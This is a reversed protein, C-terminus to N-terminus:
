ARSDRSLGTWDEPTNVNTFLAPPWPGSCVTRLELLLQRMKFRKESLAHEVVLLCSRHYVACLPEIQGGVGSPGVCALQPDAISECRTWLASLVAGTLKPMDCAVVLNWEALGLRLATHLGGLPGCGPLLDPYVPYGLESYKAPDGIIGVYSTTGKVQNAVAQLLTAGGYPLLAKDRGMRASQGGAMVFGARLM